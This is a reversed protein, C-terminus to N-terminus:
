PALLNAYKVTKEREEERKGIGGSCIKNSVVIGVGASSQFM